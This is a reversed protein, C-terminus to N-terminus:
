LYNLVVYPLDKKDIYYETDPSLSYYDYDFGGIKSVPITNDYPNTLIEIEQFDQSYVHKDFINM